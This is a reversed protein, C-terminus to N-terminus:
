QNKWSTSYTLNGDYSKWNGIFEIFQHDIKETKKNWIFTYIFKGKLIGSHKGTGEEALEYEGFVTNRKKGDKYKDIKLKGEFKTNTNEVLSFGSVFYEQDNKKNQESTTIRVKIPMKENSITGLYPQSNNMWVSSINPMQSFAFTSILLFLLTLKKM